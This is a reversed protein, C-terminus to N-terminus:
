PNLWNETPVEPLYTFDRDDTILIAKLRLTMAAILLDIDSLQRGQQRTRAWLVAALRWDVLQVPIVEFLPVIENQFTAFQSSAGRHLLGKEVEYIVPEPLILRDTTNQSIRLLLSRYQVKLMNSVHNTDFAYTKAAM